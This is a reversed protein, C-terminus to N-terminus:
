FAGKAGVLQVPTFNSPPEVYPLNPEVASRLLHVARAFETKGVGPAGYLFAPHRGAAVLGLATVAKPSLELSPWKPTTRLRGSVEAGEVPRGTRVVALVEALTKVPSWLAGQPKWAATIPYIFIGADAPPAPRDVDVWSVLAKLDLTGMARLGDRFPVQGSAMLVGLAIPLDMSSGLQWPRSPHFSVTIRKGPWKAGVELLASHIRNPAERVTSDRTGVM